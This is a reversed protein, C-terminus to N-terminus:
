RQWPRKISAKAQYQANGVRELADVRRLWAKLERPSITQEWLQSYLHRAHRHRFPTPLLSLPLTSTQTLECLRELAREILHAHDFALPLEKLESLSLWRTTRADDGAAASPLPREGTASPPSPPLLALTAVSVVWGRPDRGPAGFCGLEILVEPKLRVGTEELLERAAAEHPSEGEDVFGGPLAWHGEFPAHAREIMLIKLTGQHFTLAIVDATLAPRPYDYSHM